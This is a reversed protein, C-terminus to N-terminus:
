RHSYYQSNHVCAFSMSRESLPSLSSIKIKYVKMMAMLDDIDRSSYGLLRASRLNNSLANIRQLLNTHAQAFDDVLRDL